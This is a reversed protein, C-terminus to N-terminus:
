TVLPLPVATVAFFAEWYLIPFFFDSVQAVFSARKGPQTAGYGWNEVQFRLSCGCSSRYQFVKMMPFWVLFGLFVVVLLGITPVVVVLLTAAVERVTAEEGADNYGRASSFTGIGHFGCRWCSLRGWVRALYIRSRAAGPEHQFGMSDAVGTGTGCFGDREEEEEEEEKKKKKKKKKLGGQESSASAAKGLQSSCSEQFCSGNERHDFHLTFGWLTPMGLVLPTDCQTRAMQM